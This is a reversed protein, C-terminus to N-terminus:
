SYYSILDRNEKDDTCVKYNLNFDLNIKVSNGGRRAM